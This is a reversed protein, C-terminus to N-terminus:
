RVLRISKADGQWVRRKGAQVPGAAAAAAAAQAAGIGLRQPLLSPGAPTAAPRAAGRPVHQNGRGVPQPVHQAALFGHAYREPPPPYGALRAKHARHQPHWGTGEASPPLRPQPAPRRTPQRRWSCSGGRSQQVEGAAGSQREGEGEGQGGGQLQGEGSAAASASICVAQRRHAAANSPSNRSSMVRATAKRGAQLTPPGGAQSCSAAACAGCNFLGLVDCQICSQWNMWICAHLSEYSRDPLM